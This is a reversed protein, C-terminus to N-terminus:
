KNSTLELVIYLIIAGLSVTYVLRMVKYTEKVQAAQRRIHIHKFLNHIYDEMLIHYNRERLVTAHSQKM